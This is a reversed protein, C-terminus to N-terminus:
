ESRLHRRRVDYSAESFAPTGKAVRLWEDYTALDKAYFTAKNDVLWRALEEPTAFAPSVPTGQSVTEYMMLHTCDAEPWDPMLQLPVYRGDEGWPHCWDAPVRRVERGM